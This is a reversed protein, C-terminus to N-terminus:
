YFERDYVNLESMLDILPNIRRSYKGIYLSQEIYATWHVSDMNHVKSM